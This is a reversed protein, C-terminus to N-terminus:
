ETEESNTTLRMVVAQGLELTEIRAIQENRWAALVRARGPSDSSDRAGDQYKLSGATLHERGAGAQKEM